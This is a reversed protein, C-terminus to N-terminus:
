VLVLQFLQNTLVQSSIQLRGREINETKGLWSIKIESIICIYFILIMSFIDTMIQVLIHSLLNVTDKNKIWTYIMFNKYITYDLCMLPFGFPSWGEVEIWQVCSLFDVLLLCIILLTILLCCIYLFFCNIFIICIMFWKGGRNITTKHHHHHAHPSATVPPTRSVTHYLDESCDTSVLCDLTPLWLTREWGHCQSHSYSTTIVLWDYRVM